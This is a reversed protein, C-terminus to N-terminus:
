ELNNIINILEERKIWPAKIQNGRDDVDRWEVSEELNGEGDWGTQEWYINYRQAKSVIAIMEEKTYTKM